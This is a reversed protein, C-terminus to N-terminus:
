NARTARGKRNKRKAIRVSLNLDARIESALEPFGCKSLGSVVDIPRITSKGSENVADQCASLLFLGFVGGCRAFSAILDPPFRKNSSAQKMLRRVSSLPLDLPCSVPRYKTSLGAHPAVVKLGDDVWGVPVTVDIYDSQGIGPLAGNGDDESELYKEELLDGSDSTSSSPVEIVATNTDSCFPNNLVHDGEEEQAFERESSM